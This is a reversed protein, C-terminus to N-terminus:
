FLVILNLKEAQKEIRERPKIEKEMKKWGTDV